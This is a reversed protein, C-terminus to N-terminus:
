SLEQRRRKKLVEGSRDRLVYIALLGLPGLLGLASVVLGYGKGKAYTFCACASLVYGGAILCYGYFLYHSSSNALFFGLVFFLMSGWFCFVTETKYERLVSVERKDTM